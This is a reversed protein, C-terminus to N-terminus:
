QLEQLARATAVATRAAELGRNLKSGLCRDQAQEENNLLLVSNIVPLRNALSIDLLAQTVSRAILDAHATEGELIVGLALIAQYRKTEAAAQALLPIEYAGPVQVLTILAGPELCQLEKTAFEVLPHVYKANYQSAVIAFSLTAKTAQRPRMTLMKSMLAIINAIKQGCAVVVKGAKRKDPTSVAM